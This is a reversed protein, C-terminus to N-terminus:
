GTPSRAHRSGVLTDTFRYMNNWYYANTVNRGWVIMSWNTTMARVGARLDLTAYPRLRLEPDGGLSANTASHHTM